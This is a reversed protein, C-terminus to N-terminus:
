ASIAVSKSATSSFPIVAIPHPPQFYNSGGDYSYELFLLVDGDPASGGTLDVEFSGILGVEGAPNFSGITGQAGSAITSGNTAATVDTFSLGGQGDGKYFDFDVTIASAAITEGVQNEAVFQIDATLAM